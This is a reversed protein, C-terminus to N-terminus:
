EEFFDRFIDSFDLIEFDLFECIRVEVARDIKFDANYLCKLYEVKTWDPSLTIDERKNVEEELLLIHMEEYEAYKVNNFIRRGSKREKGWRCYEALPTLDLTNKCLHRIKKASQPAKLFGFKKKDIGYVEM